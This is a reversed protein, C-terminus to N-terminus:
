KPIIKDLQTPGRTEELTTWHQRTPGRTDDLTM